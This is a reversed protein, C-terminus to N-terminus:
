TKKKMECFMTITAAKFSSSYSFELMSTVESNPEVSWRKMKAYNRIHWTFKSQMEFM